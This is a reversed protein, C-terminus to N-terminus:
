SSTRSGLPSYGTTKFRRPFNVVSAGFVASGFDDEEFEIEDIDFHQKMLDAARQANLSEANAQLIDFLAAGIKWRLEELARGAAISMLAFRIDEPSIEDNAVESGIFETFATHTVEHSHGPDDGAIAVDFADKTRLCIRVVSGVDVETVDDLILFPNDIRPKALVRRNFHFHCHGRRLPAPATVGV